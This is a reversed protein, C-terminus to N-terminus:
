KFDKIIIFILAAQLFYSMIQKSGSDTPDMPDPDEIKYGVYGPRIQIWVQLVYKSGFGIPNLGYGVWQMGLKVKM